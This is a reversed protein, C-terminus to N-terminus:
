SKVLAALLEIQHLQDSHSPSAPVVVV